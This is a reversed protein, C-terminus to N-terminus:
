QGDRAHVYLVSIKARTKDLQTIHLVDGNIDLFLHNTCKTSPVEM